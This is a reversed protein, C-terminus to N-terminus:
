VVSKRDTESNIECIAPVPENVHKMLIAVASDGEFPPRGAIMEFLTVGLSYIDAREDPREGRAQEPSMYLATGIVTGTATYHTEGLIKAVGFDMLIPEGRRNLMINAPKLDRHVVGKEHAQSLGETVEMALEVARSPSLPGRNLLDSLKEGDILEM